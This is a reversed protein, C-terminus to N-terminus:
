DNLIEKIAWIYGKVVDSNNDGWIDIKVRLEKEDVLIKDRLYAWLHLRVMTMLVSPNVEKNSCLKELDVIVKEVLDLGKITKM